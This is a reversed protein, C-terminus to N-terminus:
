GFTSPSCNSDLFHQLFVAAMSCVPAKNVAAVAASAPAAGPPVAEQNATAAAPGGPPLSCSSTPTDADWEDWWTSALGPRVSELVAACM